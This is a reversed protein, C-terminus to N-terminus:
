RAGEFKSVWEARERVAVINGQQDTYLAIDAGQPIEFCNRTACVWQPDLPGAVFRGPASPAREALEATSPAPEGHSDHGDREIDYFRISGADSDVVYCPRGFRAEAVSLSQGIHSSLQVQTPRERV